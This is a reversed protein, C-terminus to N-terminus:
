DKKQNKNQKNQNLRSLMEDFLSKFLERNKPKEAYMNNDAEKFIDQMSKAANNKIAWGVSLSIPFPPSSARYLATAQKIRQCAEEIVLQPCTPLLVAFEDGGIRAVVDGERFCQLLIKAVTALLADGTAHGLNDNVLKLGDVDCVVIGVPDCRGSQMRNLEEEFYSRNYLGTPKDHMSLFRLWEEMQKRDTIDRVIVQVMDKGDMKITNLNVETDIMTGDFRYLGLEFIALQGQQAKGIKERVMEITKVGDSQNPPTFSQVSKGILQDRSCGFMEETRHNCELITNGDILIIADNASEFLLRYKYESERLKEEMERRESLDLDFCFITPEAGEIAVVSNISYVTIQSGDQHLLQLEGPPMLEGSKVAQAAIQLFQNFTPKFEAPIVLDAIKKGVAEAATYGYVKESGKNWYTVIGDVGYGQIAVGPLYEMLNRFRTESARLREETRIRDTIDEYIYLDGFYNNLEDAIRTAFVRVIKGDLLTIQTETMDPPDTLYRKLVDAYSSRDAVLAICHQCIDAWGLEGHRMAKELTNLRWIDCFSQNFYLIEDTPRDFLFIGLPAKRAMTDLLQISWQLKKVTKETKNNKSGFGNDQVEDL